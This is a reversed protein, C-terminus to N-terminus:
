WPDDDDLYINQSEFMHVLIAILQNIQELM